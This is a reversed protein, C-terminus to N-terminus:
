IREPRTSGASPRGCLPCRTRGAPWSTTSGAPIQEAILIVATYKEDTVAPCLDLVRRYFHAAAYPGVGGVIGLRNM